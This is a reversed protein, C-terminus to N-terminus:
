FGAVRSTDMNRLCKQFLGQFAGDQGSKINAIHKLKM